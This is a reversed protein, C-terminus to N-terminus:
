YICILLLIFRVSPAVTAILEVGKCHDLNNVENKPTISVEMFFAPICTFTDDDNSKSVTLKINPNCQNLCKTNDQAVTCMNACGKSCNTTLVCKNSYKIYPPKCDCNALNGNTLDILPLNPNCQGCTTSDNYFVCTGNCFQHCQNFTRLCVKQSKNNSRKDCTCQYLSGVKLTQMNIYSNCSFCLSKDALCENYNCLDSCGVTSICGPQINGIEYGSQCSCMNMGSNTDDVFETYHSCYYACKNQNNQETCMGGCLTHCNNTVLNVNAGNQDIVMDSQKSRASYLIIEANSSSICANIDNPKLCETCAPHCSNTLINLCEANYFSPIKDCYLASTEEIRAVVFNAISNTTSVGAIFYAMISSSKTISTTKVKNLPTSNEFKMFCKNQVSFKMVRGIDNSYQGVLISQSDLSGVAAQQLSAEEFSYSYSNYSNTIFYLAGPVMVYSAAANVFFDMSSPWKSLMVFASLIPNFFVFENYTKFFLYNNDKIGAFLMRGSPDSTISYIITNATNSYEFITEEFTNQGDIYRMLLGNPYGNKVQFGGAYLNYSNGKYLSFLSFSTVLPSVTVKFNNQNGCSDLDCRMSYANYNSGKKINALFFLVKPSSTTLEIAAVRGESCIGSFCEFDLNINYSWILKAYKSLKVIRLTSAQFLSAFVVCDDSTTLVVPTGSGGFIDVFSATMITDKITSIACEKLEGNIEEAIFSLIFLLIFTKIM